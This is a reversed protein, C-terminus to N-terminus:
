NCRSLLQVGIGSTKKKRGRVDYHDREKRKCGSKTNSSSSMNIGGVMRAMNTQFDPIVDEESDDSGEELGDCAINSTGPDVDSGASVGSSPAWAFARTAVINSYMRDFKNKLSPEIGIHRFKKAGRIEQMYILDLLSPYLSTFNQHQFKVVIFSITLIVLFTGSNKTEVM